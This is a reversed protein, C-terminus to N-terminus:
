SGRETARKSPGGASGGDLKAFHGCGPKQAKIAAEGLWACRWGALWGALWTLGPWDLWRVLWCKAM